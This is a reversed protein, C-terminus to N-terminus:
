WIKEQDNFIVNFNELNAEEENPNPMFKKDEGGHIAGYTLCYGAFEDTLIIKSCGIFQLLGIGTLRRNNFLTDLHAAIKFPRLEFDKLKWQDFHCIIDFEIINDRFQPNAPNTVFNDFTIIIYQLVERDVYLKPVMRINNGILSISQEETLKPKLLADETTYYLLKKLQEDKLIMDTILSMDKEVSLFSSHPQIYSEKKM